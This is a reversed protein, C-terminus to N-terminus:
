ERGLVLELEGRKGVGRVFGHDDAGGADADCIDARMVLLSIEPAAADPLHAPGIVEEGLHLEVPRLESRAETVFFARALGGGVFPRFFFKKRFVGEILGAQM